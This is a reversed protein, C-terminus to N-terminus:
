ARRLMGAKVERPEFYQTLGYYRTDFGALNYIPEDDPLLDSTVTIKKFEDTQTFCIDKMPYIALYPKKTDEVPSKFRLASEVGSTDLIEPIHVTTYWKLFQSENLNPSTIRSNVYLLGPGKIESMNLPTARTSRTNTAIDVPLNISFNPLTLLIYCSDPYRRGPSM